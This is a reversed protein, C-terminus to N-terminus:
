FGYKDEIFDLSEIIIQPKNTGMWENVACTGVVEIDLTVNEEMCSKLQEILDTAFFKIYTIGNYEFKLTNSNKGIVQLQKARISIKDIHVLPTKNHSGWINPNKCLDFILATIDNDSGHRQFDVVFVDENFNYHKLVDNSYRILNDLKNVPLSCGAANPHGSVYEFLNSDLLFQKFDSLASNDLGRISGRIFSGNSRAVITPKKYEAALSMALLGNLTSPFNMSDDLTVFLIKNDNLNNELIQMKLLELATDQFKKQHTKANTCERLSEIASKELAGNAGRKHSTIMKEGDLFSEFLRIKEEQTGVRIMANILPTIYFSITVYNVKGGTSFSQKELASKFFFNNIHKLGYHIIAQNEISAASGMDSIIGLAALDTYKLALEPDIYRFFQWTVGAGTLDKNGYESSMQNNVIIAYKSQQFTTDPDHHDLVLTHIGREGLQEIYPFDNTGADPIIMEDIDEDIITDILDALGHGKAEHLYYKINVEPYLEKTICYFIAASTIGDTDSDVILGLKKNSQCISHYYEVAKEINSLYSPSQVDKEISLCGNIIQEANDIGREKLLELVYNDRIDKILLKTKM